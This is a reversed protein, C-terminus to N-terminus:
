CKEQATGKLVLYVNEIEVEVLYQSGLCSGFSALFLSYDPLIEIM